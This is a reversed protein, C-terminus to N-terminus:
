AYAKGLEIVLTWGFLSGVWSLLRKAFLPRALERSVGEIIYSWARNCAECVAKVTRYIRKATQQIGSIVAVMHHNCRPCHTVRKGEADM